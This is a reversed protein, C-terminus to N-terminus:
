RSKSVSAVVVHSHDEDFTSGLVSWLTQRLIGELEGTLFRRSFFCQIADGAEFTFHEGRHELVSKNHFLFEGIVARQERSFGLCFEGSAPDVGAMRLPELVAKTFLDSRYSSLIQDESQDGLLAVGTLLIDGPQTSAHVNSLVLHANESNGLTQGLFPLLIRGRVPRWHSIAPAPGAEFDWTASWFPFSHFSAMLREIAIKLLSASFDLGLYSHLVYGSNQLAHLFQISHIANGPGIECIALEEKGGPPIAYNLAAVETRTARALAQYTTLAASRDHTEAASGAYAFKVPVRQTKMAQWFKFEHDACEFAPIM